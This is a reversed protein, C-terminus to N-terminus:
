ASRKSAAERAKRMREGEQFLREAEEEHGAHDARLMAEYNALEDPTMKAREEGFSHSPIRIVRRDDYDSPTDM